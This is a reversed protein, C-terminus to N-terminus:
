RCIERRLSIPQACPMALTNTKMSTLTYMESSWVRLHGTIAPLCKCCLAIREQHTRTQQLLPSFSLKGEQWSPSVQMRFTFFFCMMFDLLTHGQASITIWQLVPWNTKKKSLTEKQVQPQKDAANTWKNIKKTEREQHCSPHFSKHLRHREVSLSLHQLHLSGFVLKVTFIARQPRSCRWIGVRWLHSSSIHQRSLWFIQGRATPQQIISCNPCWQILQGDQHQLLFSFFLLMQLHTSSFNFTSSPDRSSLLSTHISHICLSTYSLLYDRQASFFSVKQLKTRWLSPPVFLSLAPLRPPASFPPIPPWPPLMSPTAHPRYCLFTTPTAFPAAYSHCLLPQLHPTVNKSLHCFLTLHIFM